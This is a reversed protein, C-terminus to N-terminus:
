QGTVGLKTAPEIELNGLIWYEATAMASDMLVPIASTRMIPVTSGNMNWKSSIVILGSMPGPGHPIEKAQKGVLSEVSLSAM